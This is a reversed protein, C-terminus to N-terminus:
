LALIYQKAIYVSIAEVSVQSPLRVQSSKKKWPKFIELRGVRSNGERAIEMGREEKVRM